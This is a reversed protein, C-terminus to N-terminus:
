VASVEAVTMMMSMLCTETMPAPMMPCPMACAETMAPYSVCRYSTEAGARSFPRDCISATTLFPISSPFTFSASPAAASFRSFVNVSRPAATFCVSKTMSAAGSFISSLSLSSASRSFSAGCCATMADFVEDSLRVSIAAASDFGPRSAPICKKLGTCM